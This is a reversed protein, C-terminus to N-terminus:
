ILGISVAAYIGVLNQAVISVVMHEEHTTGIRAWCIWSPPRGGNKGRSAIDSDTVLRVEVLVALRLIVCVVGCLLWPIRTKRHWLDGRFEVPTM